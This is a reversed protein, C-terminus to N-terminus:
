CCISKAFRSTAAASSSPPSSRAVPHLDAPLGHSSVQREPRASPRVCARICAASARSRSSGGGAAPASTRAPSSPAPAPRAASARSRADHLANYPIQRARIYQWVQEETWDLLPSVKQLGNPADWEIPQGLARTASQQAACARSGPATARRHRAQLARDQARPLLRPACGPQPLLRQHGAQRGAERPERLGPYVLTIRKKYRRELKELLEYTEEHLRGTDISFIDIEPVHTWIIDTLVM